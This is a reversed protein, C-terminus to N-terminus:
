LKKKINDYANAINVYAYACGVIPLSSVITGSALMFFVGFVRVIYVGAVAGISACVIGKLQPIIFTYMSLKGGRANIEEYSSYSTAIVYGSAAIRINDLVVTEIPQDYVREYVKKARKISSVFLRKFM